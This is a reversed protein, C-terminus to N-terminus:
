AAEHDEVVIGNRAMTLFWYKQEPTLDRPDRIGQEMGYAEAEGRLDFSPLWEQPEGMWEPRTREGSWVMKPKNGSSCKRGAAVRAMAYARCNVSWTREKRIYYDRYGRVGDEFTEWKPGKPYTADAFVTLGSRPFWSPDPQLRKAWLLPPFCNHAKGYRHMYEANIADAHQVLWDWNERSVGVWLTCPHRGHVPAYPVDDVGMAAAATSLMQCSELLMKVVHTDCLNRASQGPTEHTAFINM